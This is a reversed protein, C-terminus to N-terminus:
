DSRKITGLHLCNPTSFSKNISFDITTIDHSKESFNEMAINKDINFSPNPPTMSSQNQKNQHLNQSVRVIGNLIEHLGKVKERLQNNDNNYLELIDLVDKTSTMNVYERMFNKKLENLSKNMYFKMGAMQEDFHLNIEEVYKYTLTNSATKQVNDPQSLIIKIEEDTNNSLLDDLIKKLTASSKSSSTM